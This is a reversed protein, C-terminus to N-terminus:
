RWRRPAIYGLAHAKPIPVDEFLGAHAVYSSPATADGMCPKFFITRRVWLKRGPSRNRRGKPDLVVRAAISVILKLINVPACESVKMM